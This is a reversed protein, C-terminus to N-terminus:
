PSSLFPNLNPISAALSSPSGMVTTPVSAFDADTLPQPLEGAGAASAAVISALTLFRM